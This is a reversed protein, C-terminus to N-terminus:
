PLQGAKGVVAIKLLASSPSGPELSGMENDGIFQYTRPDFILEILHGCGYLGSM